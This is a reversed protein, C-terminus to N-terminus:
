PAKIWIEELQARGEASYTLPFATRFGARQKSVFPQLHSYMYHAPVASLEKRWASVFCTLSMGLTIADVSSDLQGEEEPGKGNNRFTEPTRSFRYDM